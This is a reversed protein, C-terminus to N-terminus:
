TMGGVPAPIHIAIKGENTLQYFIVLAHITGIKPFLIGFPQLIIVYFKDAERLPADFFRAVPNQGVDSIVAIEIVWSKAAHPPAQHLAEALNVNIVQM